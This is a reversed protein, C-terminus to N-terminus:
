FSGVIEILRYAGLLRACRDMKEDIEQLEQENPRMIFPLKALSPIEKGMQELSTEISSVRDSFNRFMQENYKSLCDRLETELGELKTVLVTGVSDGNISGIVRM